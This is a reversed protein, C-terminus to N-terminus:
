NINLCFSKSLLIVAEDLDLEPATELKMQGIVKKNDEPYLEHSPDLDSFDFDETFYKLDEILSKIPKFSFIYSDTDLYHLQLNGKGFYQQMKDYYWEYMLLKSLELVSFRVYIPKTFKISEKNISYLSFKEYEAIKDHLSLKSQRSLLRHTDSKDILDLNLRKRIIKFTKGYFSNKM